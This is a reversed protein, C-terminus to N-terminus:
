ETYFLTFCKESICKPMEASIRFSLIFPVGHDPQFFGPFCSCLSFGERLAFVNEGPSVLACSTGSTHLAIFIDIKMDKTNQTNELRDFCPKAMISTINMKFDTGPETKRGEEFDFMKDSKM